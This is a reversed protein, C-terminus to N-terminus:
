DSQSLKEAGFTVKTVRIYWMFIDSLPLIHMSIRLCFQDGANDSKLTISEREDRRVSGLGRLYWKWDQDKWQVMQVQKQGVYKWEM